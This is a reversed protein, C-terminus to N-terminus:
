GLVEMILKVLDRDTGCAFGANGKRNKRAIDELKKWVNDIRKGKRMFMAAKEQSSAIMRAMDYIIKRPQEPIKSNEEQVKIRGMAAMTPTIYLEVGDEVADDIDRIDLGNEKCMAELGERDGEKLLNKALIDMETYSEMEGFRKFM